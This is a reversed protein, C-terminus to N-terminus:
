KARLKDTLALFRFPFYKVRFKMRNLKNKDSDSLFKPNIYTLYLKVKDLNRKGYFFLPEWTTDPCNFVILLIPTYFSLNSKM